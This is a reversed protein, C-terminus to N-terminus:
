KKKISISILSGLLSMILYITYKIYNTNYFIDNTLNKIIVIVILIIFTSVLTSLLVKKNELLGSLIGYIFFIVAGIIFSTRYIADSNTNIIGKYLLITYIISTLTLIFLTILFVIAKKLLYKM